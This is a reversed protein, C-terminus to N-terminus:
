DEREKRLDFADAFAQVNPLPKSLIINIVSLRREAYLRAPRDVLFADKGSPRFRFAPVGQEDQVELLGKVQLSRLKNGISQPHTYLANTVSEISWGQPSQRHLFLLIELEELSDINKEVFLRVDDPFGPAVM